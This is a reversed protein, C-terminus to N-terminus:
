WEGHLGAVEETTAPREEVADGARAVWDTHGVARFVFLLVVGIVIWGIVIPVAYGVPAAPITTVVNYALVLLSVTSVLPIIFHLWINFQDRRQRWYYLFSAFNGSGYVVITVLGIMLGDLFYQSDTAGGAFAVLILGTVLTVVYQALITNVPTKYVPHTKAFFKPLVGSRAMSYWMRSGMNACALTVALTSSLFVLMLAIWGDGWLRKAITIAPLETATPIKAFNATGWGIMTGFTAIILFVGILIISGYIARPVNKTPNETEEALPAAGDWGTIAQMGFIVALMIGTGLAGGTANAPNFPQLNFGGPGPSFMAWITLLLVVFIEIGGLIVLVKGSLQVGRYQLLMVLTAGLFFFAWWPFGFGFAEKLQGNIIAGSYILVPGGATPAYLFFLWAIVFGIYPGMTRSIYTYYGGASPMAKTLQVLSVGLFLTLVVAVPYALPAALGAFGVVAPTFYLAAIAPAITAISQMLISPLRLAGAKLETQAVTVQPRAYVETM